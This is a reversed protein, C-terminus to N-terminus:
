DESTASDAAFSAAVSSHRFSFDKRGKTFTFTLIRTFIMQYLVDMGVMNISLTSFKFFIIPSSPLDFHELSIPLPASTKM